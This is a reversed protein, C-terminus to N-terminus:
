VKTDKIRIIVDKNLTCQFPNLLHTHIGSKQCRHQVPVNSTPSWDSNYVLYADIKGDDVYDKQATHIFSFINVATESAGDQQM